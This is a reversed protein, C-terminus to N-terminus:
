QEAECPVVSTVTGELWLMPLLGLVVQFTETHGGFAAQMEFDARLPFPSCGGPAAWVWFRSGPCNRSPDHSIDNGGFPGQGGAM